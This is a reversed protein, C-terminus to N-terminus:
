QVDRRQHTDSTVSAPESTDDEPRCRRDPRRMSLARLMSALVPTDFPKQLFEAGLETSHRVADGEYGSMLVVAMRPWRTRLQLALTGGDADPLLMDTLLVDFPPDDPLLDVEAATAATTVRYGLADLIRKLALRTTEEDEVILLRAGCGAAMQGLTVPRVRAPQPEPNVVLPLLVRFTTGADARSEVEVRGGHNTVIGHVVSLGLGTGHGLAKTTFFPDFIKERLEDPIGGGSDTVFFSGNGDIAAVGIRVSGGSPMADAANIALNMLVQEVQGRDAVIWVPATATEVILEV